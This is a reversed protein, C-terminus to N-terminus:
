TRLAASFRVDAQAGQLGLMFRLQFSRKTKIPIGALRSLEIPIAIAAVPNDNAEDREMQIFYGDLLEQPIRPTTAM